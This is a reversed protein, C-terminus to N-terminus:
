MSRPGTFSQTLPVWVTTRVKINVAAPSQWCCFNGSAGVGCFLAGAGLALTGGGADGSWCADGGDVSLGARGAFVRGGSGCFGCAGGGPECSILVTGGPLPALPDFSPSFLRSSSNLKVFVTLKTLM